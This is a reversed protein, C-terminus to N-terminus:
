GRFFDRADWGTTATIRLPSNEPSYRDANALLNVMVQVIRRPDANVAPLEPALEIRVENRGGGSLFTNRAQDMLGTVLTAVPNVQLTGTRIRAVDLLDNVLGSMEDAHRNIIRFFQVM